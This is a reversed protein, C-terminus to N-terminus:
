GNLQQQDNLCRSENRQIAPFSRSAPEASGSMTATSISTDAVHTLTVDTDAGFGLVAADNQLTVDHNFLATGAAAMDLTLATITTGNDVGKFVIPENSTDSKIIFDSNARKFRGFNVGNQKLIIDTGEADIVVDGASDITFDGASTKISGADTLTIDGELFLDQFAASASGLDYSDDADPVISGGTIIGNKVRFENAM